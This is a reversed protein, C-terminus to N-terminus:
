PLSSFKIQDTASIHEILQYNYSQQLTTNHKKHDTALDWISNFVFRQSLSPHLPSTFHLMQKYIVSQSFELSLLNHVFYKKQSPWLSWHLICFWREAEIYCISCVLTSSIILVFGTNFWSHCLSSSISLSFKRSVSSVAHITWEMCFL